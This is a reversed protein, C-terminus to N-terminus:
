FPSPSPSLATTPAASTPVSSTPTPIGSTPTPVVPSTTPETAAIVDLASTAPVLRVIGAGLPPVSVVTCGPGGAELPTCTTVPDNGMIVQV